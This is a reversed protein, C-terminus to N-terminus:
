ETLNPIWFKQGNVIVSKLGKAPLDKEALGLYTFHPADSKVTQFWGNQAMIRRVEASGFQTVDLALMFNHQSAGPAAVSYLISKSLDTSFFINDEEWALVREIQDRIPVSAAARAADSQKIRGARVWYRLGPDVRSRWLSVTTAYSRASADSGGRPTIRLRRASADKVAKLLATMAPRQLTIRVGGLTETQTDFQAHLAGLEADSDYMCRPPLMVGNGAVFIAGYERFIRAAVWDNTIPCVAEFDRKYEREFTGEVVERFDASAAPQAIVAPILLSSSLIILLTRLM